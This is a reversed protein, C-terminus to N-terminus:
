EKNLPPANMTETKQQQLQSSRWKLLKPVIQNVCWLFYSEGVVVM